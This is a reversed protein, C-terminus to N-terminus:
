LSLAKPKQAEHPHSEGAYVKLKKFMERGLPGKPLMGWVAKKIIEEPKKARVEAVTASKIGGVWGTHWYYTKKEEKRGTLKVKEANVVVVFDGTDAHPTFTPKRKGRLVMAIETALRGLVKNEADVMFWDHDVTTKSFSKTKM